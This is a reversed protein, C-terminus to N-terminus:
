DNRLLKYVSDNESNDYDKVNYQVEESEYEDIGDNLNEVFIADYEYEYERMEYDDEEFM